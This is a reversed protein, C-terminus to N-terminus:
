SARLASLIPDLLLGKDRAEGLFEALTVRDDVYAAIARIVHLVRNQDKTYGAYLTTLEADPCGTLCRLEAYLTEVEQVTRGFVDMRVRDLLQDNEPCLAKLIRDIAEHLVVGMDTLPLIEDNPTM